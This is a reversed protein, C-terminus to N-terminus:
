VLNHKKYHAKLDVPKYVRKTSAPHKDLQNKPRIPRLSFNGGCNPCVERLVGHVCDNCFTCEYTCIFAQESNAPLAKDCHECSPRIELMFRNITQCNQDRPWQM